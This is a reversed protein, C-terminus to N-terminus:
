PHLFEWLIIKDIHKKKGRLGLTLFLITIELLVPSVFFHLPRVLKLSNILRFDNEAIDVYCVSCGNLLPIYIDTMITNKLVICKSNRALFKKATLSIPMISLIRNQIDTMITNKLVISKSNRALFKKATLSIPMISLIRNQKRKDRLEKLGDEQQIPTTNELINLHSLKEGKPPIGKSQERYNILCCSYYKGINKLFNIDNESFNDKM